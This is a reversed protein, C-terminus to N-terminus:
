HPTDDHNRTCPVNMDVPANTSVFYKRMLRQCDGSPRDMLANMWNVTCPYKTPDITGLQYKECLLVIPLTFLDAYSFGGCLYGSKQSSNRNAEESAESLEKEVYEVLPGLEDLYPQADSRHAVHAFAEIASVTDQWCTM